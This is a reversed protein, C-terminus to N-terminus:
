GIISDVSAPGGIEALFRNPACIIREGQQSIPSCHVCIKHRCSSDAIWAKGDSMAVTIRGGETRFTRSGNWGLPLIRMRRGNKYLALTEGEAPAPPNRRFSAVTLQSSFPQRRGLEDWLVFLRRTRIDWVRGDRALTFSPPVSVQLRRTSLSLHAPQGIAASLWGRQGLQRGLEESQPLGASLSYTRGTVIGLSRLEELLIPLTHHPFDSILFIEADHASKQEALLMPTLLPTLAMSRFFQRRDM